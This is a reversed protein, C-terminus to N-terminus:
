KINELTNRIEDLALWQQANLTLIQEANTMQILHSQISNRTTAPNFTPFQDIKEEFTIQDTFGYCNHPQFFQCFQNTMLDQATVLLQPKTQDILQKQISFDSQANFLIMNLGAKNIALIAILRQVPHELFIGINNNKIKKQSLLFHCLQNALENIYQYSYLQNSFITATHKPYKAARKEFILALSPKKIAKLFRPKKKSWINLQIMLQDKSLNM